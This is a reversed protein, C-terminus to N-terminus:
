RSSASAPPGPSLHLLLSLRKLLPLPLPLVTLKSKDMGIENLLLEKSRLCFPGKSFSFMVVPSSSITQDIRRGIEEQDYDGAVSEAVWQKFSAVFGKQSLESAKQALSREEAWERPEGSWMGNGESPTESSKSVRLMELNYILRTLFNGEAKPKEGRRTEEEMMALRLPPRSVLRDGKMMGRWSRMMTAHQFGLVQGSEAMGTAMALVALVRGPAM